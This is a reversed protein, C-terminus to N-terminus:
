HSARCRGRAALEEAATRVLLAKSQRAVRLAEEYALRSGPDSRKLNEYTEATCLWRHAELLPLFESFPGTPNVAQYESAYIAERSPCDAFGEWEYCPRLNDVYEAALAPARPDDTVAVLRREYRIQAHYVMELESSNTPSRRASRYEQSRQLHRKIEEQVAPSYANPDIQVYSGWVLLDVLTYGRNAGSTQASLVGPVWVLGVMVIAVASIQSRM